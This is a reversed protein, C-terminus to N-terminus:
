SNSGEISEIDIKKQYKSVKETPKTQLDIELESFIQEVQEWSVTKSHRSQNIENINLHDYVKLFLENTIIDGCISNAM